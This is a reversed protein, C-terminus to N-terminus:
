EQNIAFVREVRKLKRDKPKDISESYSINPQKCNLKSFLESLSGAVKEQLARKEESTTDIFIEISEFNRQIAKYENIKNSTFAITRSIFDPFVPILRSNDLSPLYFIDDCRGEIKEIATFRCGCPCPEIKETLIDNLRYRIIPQTLRSFDTIVPIFKHLDKDLYEKQIVVLDENLHLTGYRCTTALFGETCQYIQHIKQNFENSIYKEDLGDLVEAVSIIKHPNIHLEQRQKAEALLRLMSAPAVLLIPKFENLRTIHESIPNLLDFFKFQINKSGVTNYLNSNARLFFAIKHKSFIAGPLAKALITGAWKYREEPSVLFIGRNGSTGSSLGITIDNIMPSFDRFKEAKYAIEFAELKSIGVTNLIDFNDMMVTKDIIPLEKWNELSLGKYYERYFSSHAMVYTLLKNVQEDQWKILMDKSNFKLGHKIRIYHYLIKLKDLM